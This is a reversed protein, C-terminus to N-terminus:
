VRDGRLCVTWGLRNVNANGVTFFAYHYVEERGIEIAFTLTPNM